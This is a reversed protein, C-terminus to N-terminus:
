KNPWHLDRGKLRWRTQKKRQKLVGVCVPKFSQTITIISAFVKTNMMVMGASAGMKGAFHTGRATYKFKNYIINGGCDSDCHQMSAVM